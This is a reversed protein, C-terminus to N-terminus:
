ALAGDGNFQINWKGTRTSITYNRLRIEGTRGDNLKVKYTATRNVSNPNFQPTPSLDFNGDWNQLVGQRSFNILMDVNSAIVDGNQSFIQASFRPM